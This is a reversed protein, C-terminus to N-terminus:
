QIGAQRIFDILTDLSMVVYSQHVGKGRRKAVVVPIAPGANPFKEEWNRAEVESEAIFTPLDLSARNKAEVIVNLLRSDPHFNHLNIPFAIDGIDKVGTRPQRRADIGQAQLYEAVESEFRTGKAKNAASM